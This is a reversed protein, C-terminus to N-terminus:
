KQIAQCKVHENWGPIRHSDGGGAGGGGSLPLSAHAAANVAGLVESSYWEIDDDHVNCASNTCGICDPIEIDGLKDVLYNSFEVKHEEDAKEWSPKPKLKVSEMSLDIRGIDVKCYIASHNSVNEGSHIVGAELVLNYIRETSIFHDITSFSSAQGITSSHTFDVNQIKDNPNTWFIKLNLNDIFSRIIQVFRSNRSFDSNEDGTWM